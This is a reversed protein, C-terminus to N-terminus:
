KEKFQGWVPQQLQLDPDDLESRNLGDMKGAMDDWSRLTLEIEDGPRLRAARTWTNNIMSRLFVVAESFSEPDDKSKIDVLHVSVVHDRYPVSGPRPVSSIERVLGRVRLQEGPALTLFTSPEAAKLDLPFIRWDGFALERNAFQYLVVKKGALRDRGRALERSLLRRTASAGQDNRVIRDVPQQLAHSLQEVFGASEGWGMADLSYINSFSDGLVLLEANMDAKWLSGDSELVREITVTQEPYPSWSKPLDLMAAIDGLNAVSVTQTAPLVFDSRSWAVRGNLEGSLKRSVWEMAAPTWHTDTCLYPATKTQGQYEELWGAVDAVWVGASQLQDVFRQYSVNHVSEGATLRLSLMAGALEPKVPTPVVLLLIGRASLQNRFDLLAGVPDPWPPDEWEAATRIRKDQQQRSLFGPGIVSDVDPRYFLWSDRGPYVKENGAGALLMGAQSWPRLWSAVAAQEEIDDETRRIDKLLRRNARTWAASSFGRKGLERVIEPLEGVLSFSRLSFISSDRGLRHWEVVHDTVLVGALLLLWLAVFSVAARRRITTVGVEAHAQQVRSIKKTKRPM